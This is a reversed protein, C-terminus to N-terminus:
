AAQLKKALKEQKKRLKEAKKAAREAKAEAAAAKAKAITAYIEVRREEFLTRIHDSLEQDNGTMRTLEAFFRNHVAFDATEGAVEVNESWWERILKTRTKTEPSRMTSPYRIKFTGCNPNDLSKRHYNSWTLTYHYGTRLDQLVVRLCPFSIRALSVERDPGNNQPYFKLWKCEVLQVNDKGFSEEQEIIIFNNM